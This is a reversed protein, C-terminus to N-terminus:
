PDLGVFRDFWGSPQPRAGRDTKFFSSKQHTGLKSVRDVIEKIKSSLEAPFTHRARASTRAPRRGLRRRAAGRRAGIVASLPSVSDLGPGGTEGFKIPVFKAGQEALDSFDPPNILQVTLPDSRRRSELAGLPSCVPLRLLAM